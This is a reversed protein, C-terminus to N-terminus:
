LEPLTRRVRLPLRKTDLTALTKGLPLRAGGLIREVRRRRRGEIERELLERAFDEPSWDGRRAAEVVEILVEAATPMRLVKLHLALVDTTSM